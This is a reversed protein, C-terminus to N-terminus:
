LERYLGEFAERDAAAIREAADAVAEAGGFTAQIDAYVRPTGGTVRETLDTLAEYVPTELGDPIDDAALAFALVAAHARGQVTRMADDHEAAGVEVLTNGAEALAECIRDVTPGGGAVAAAVTGPAADPAFLPHFSARERDPAARAMAALPAEMAGALDVVAARARPAHREVAESAVPLPVAVAVLDFRSDGDLQATEDGTTEAAATAVAPDADAFTVRGARPGVVGAFWRGVDGAGVILVDM